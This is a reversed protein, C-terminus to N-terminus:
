TPCCSKLWSQKWFWSTQRPRLPGIRARKNNAAQQERETQQQLSGNHDESQCSRKASRRKSETRMYTNPSSSEEGRWSLDRDKRVISAHSQSDFGVAPTVGV